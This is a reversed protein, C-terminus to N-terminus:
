DLQKRKARNRHLSPETYGSPEAVGNVVLDCAAQYALGRPEGAEIM